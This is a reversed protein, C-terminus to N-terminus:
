CYRSLLSSEIEPEETILLIYDKIGTNIFLVYEKKTYAIYITSDKVFTGVLENLCSKPLDINTYAYDIDSFDPNSIDSYRRLKVVRGISNLKYEISRREDIDRNTIYKVSEVHFLGPESYPILDNVRNQIRILEDVKDDLLPGTYRSIARVEHGLHSYRFIKNQGVIVSLNLISRSERAKVLSERLEGTSKISELGGYIRKNLDRELLEIDLNSYYNVEKTIQDSIEGVREVWSKRKLLNRLFLLM